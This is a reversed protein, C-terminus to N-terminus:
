RSAAEVFPLRLTVVLGGGDANELRLGQANGFQAALRARTNALGLAEKRIGPNAVIGPGNDQISIELDNGHRRGRIDLIGKEVKLIGHQFANEVIPQLILSPVMAHLAGADVAINVKLRDGFRVQEIELYSNLFRLEEELTCMADGKSKLTLRLFDGLRAIMQHAARPEEDILASVSNLTNFLFHPNIQMRLAELQSQALAAELQSTRLKRDRYRRYYEVAHTSCLIFACTAFNVHFKVPLSQMVLDHLSRNTAIGWLGGYRLASQIVVHTLAFGVAALLNMVVARVPQSGDIPHQRATWVVFPTMIAWTYWESMAWLIMPMIAVPQGVTTSYLYAHATFAVM